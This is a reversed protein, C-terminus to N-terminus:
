VILRKKLEKLFNIRLIIITSLLLALALSIAVIFSWELGTGKRLVLSVSAFTIAIVAFTLLPFVNQKQRAVNSFFLAASVILGGVLVFSAVEIGPWKPFVLYIIVILITINITSKVSISTRNHEILTPNFVFNWLIILSWVIIASWAPGRVLINVIVSSVAGILSLWQVIFKTTRWLDRKINKEPYVVNVKM